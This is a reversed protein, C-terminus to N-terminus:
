IGFIEAARHMNDIIKVYFPCRKECKGCEICDSAHYELLNYHERVTEPVESQATALALYKNVDAINIGSPCPQCHTCYMCHGRWTLSKVGAIAEYFDREEQPLSLWKLDNDLEAQTKAGCMVAAVAPRTLAYEICQAPTFAVGFPCSKSDFLNGGGFCKMVDIAVGKRACLEYLKERDPNIGRLKGNEFKFDYGPNLSFMIVDVLGTEVAQRAMEPSHTSMGICRIKGEKRYQQVLKIFEGKFVTDFDKQDDVYHIMGVDVYNTKLRTLLDQFAAKCKEINRTRLYQGDEWTSGIHGQVVFKNRRGELAFGIASRLEPNSSYLDLFNIGKGIAYDFEKRVQENSKKAFGECGLSVVSVEIGTRGLKRYQMKATEGAPAKSDMLNAARTVGLDAAVFGGASVLSRKIFNRRDM